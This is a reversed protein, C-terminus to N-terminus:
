FPVFDVRENSSIVASNCSLESAPGSPNKQLGITAGAATGDLYQYTITRSNKYFVVEARVPNGTNFETGRWSVIYKGSVTKTFVGEGNVQGHFILDDWYPAVAGATSLTTAPLCTNTFTTQPSNTFQINGNSSVWATTHKVGWVFVPFPLSVHVVSDDAGGPFLNVNGPVYVAASTFIHYGHVVSPSQGAASAPTGLVAAALLPITAALGYRRARKIAFGAM